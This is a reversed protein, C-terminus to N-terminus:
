SPEDTAFVAHQVDLISAPPDDSAATVSCKPFNNRPFRRDEVRTIPSSSAGNRGYFNANFYFDQRFCHDLLDVAYYVVQPSLCGL